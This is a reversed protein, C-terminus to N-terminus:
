GRRKDKMLGEVWLGCGQVGLEVRLGLGEIRLGLDGIGVEM